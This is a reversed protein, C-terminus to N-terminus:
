PAIGGYSVPTLKAEDMVYLGVLWGGVLHPDVKFKGRLSGYTTLRANGSVPSSLRVEVADYPTPPVGICCGDWQNMMSLLEDSETTMLPFAVYGTIDLWKDNLAQIRAAITKRGEKPAYENQASLLHDWTVKYPDDQTGKGKVVYKGDVLLSGDPKAEIQAGAFPADPNAPKIADGPTATANAPAAHPATVPSPPASPGPKAVEKQDAKQAEKQAEKRAAQEAAETKRQAEIEDRLAILPNAQDAPVVDPKPTVVVEVPRSAEAPPSTNPAKVAEAVPHEGPTADIPAAQTQAASPKTLAPPNPQPPATIPTAARETANPPTLPPTVVPAAQRPAPSEPTKNGSLAGSALLAVTGLVLLGVFAWFMKM